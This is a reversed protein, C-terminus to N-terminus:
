LRTCCVKTWITNVWDFDGVHMRVTERFYDAGREPITEDFLMHVSNVM